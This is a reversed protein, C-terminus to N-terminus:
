RNKIGVRSEFWRNRNKKNNNNHAQIFYYNFKLM